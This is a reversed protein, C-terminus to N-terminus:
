GWRSSRDNAEDRVLVTAALPMGLACAARVLRLKRSMEFACVWDPVPVGFRRRYVQNFHQWAMGDVWNM